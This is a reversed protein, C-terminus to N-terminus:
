IYLMLFLKKKKKNQTYLNRSNLKFLFLLDKKELLNTLTSKDRLNARSLRSYLFIWITEPGWFLLYKCGGFIPKSCRSVYPAKKTSYYLRSMWKHTRKKIKLCKNNVSYACGFSQVRIWQSNWKVTSKCVNLSTFCFFFCKDKHYGKGHCTWSVGNKKKKLQIRSYM